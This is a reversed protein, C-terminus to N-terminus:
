TKFKFKINSQSKNADSDLALSAAKFVNGEPLNLEKLTLVALISGLLQFPIYLLVRVINSEGTILLAVSVAPNM